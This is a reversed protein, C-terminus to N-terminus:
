CIKNYQFPHLGFDRMAVFLHELIDDMINEYNKWSKERLFFYFELPLGNPTSELQRVMYLMDTNIEPLTALYRDAYRRFTTLNVKDDTIEDMTVLKEDLYHNRM